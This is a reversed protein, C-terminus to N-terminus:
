SAISVIMGGHAPLSLQREAVGCVLTLRSDEGAANYLLFRRQSAPPIDRLELCPVDLSLCLVDPRDVNGLAGFLLASWFVEGAGYIEKGLKATHRFEATAVDEYPIHPCPGRRLDKPLFADFFAYNHARQLNAFAAMLGDLPAGPIGDRLLEPWALLSEVNEKYAPYSLSACAQFMGRPDYFPVAPDSGWYGMRLMLGAFDMARERWGDGPRVGALYRAAAAAFGLQQPEHTLQGPPLQHMTRLAAAAEDLHRTAGTMQHAIVQGGAYLGGVSVNLLSGRPRWDAADAFLPFLYNTQHALQEAGSLADLFMDRLTADGTLHALWPWKILANEMFYWADTFTDGPRPPYNNAIFHAAPRHFDPLLGRIHEVLARARENGGTTREWLALPWAVDLLTMLEFGRARDRKEASSGLVYARLGRRGQVDIWCAEDHLDDLTGRAMDPWGPAGPYIRPMADLLPAVADLLARQAQWATPADRRPRQMFWWTLRHVGPELPYAADLRTSVLGVGYRPGPDARYDFVERLALDYFRAPTWAFSDPPYYCITEIHTAHDYLYCAPLDNGGLGNQNATPARLITQRWTHAQRDNMNDLVGLWVVMAPNLTITEHAEIDLALRFGDGHPRVDGRFAAGPGTGRLSLGGDLAAVDSVQFGALAERMPLSATRWDGGDHVATQMVFHSEGQEFSLRMVGNELVVM